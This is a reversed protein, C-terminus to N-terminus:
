PRVHATSHDRSVAASVLHRTEEILRRTSSRRPAAPLHVLLVGPRTTFRLPPELRVAEGDLGAPMPGDADVTLAGASWRSYGPSQHGRGFLELLALRAAALGDDVRVTLVGLSGSNLRPRWASRGLGGLRYPNNSILLAHAGSHQRGDPASFRLPFPASDPGILDPLEDLLARLKSRRYHRSRVMAAYVGLSVNNVFVRGNVEALDIRFPVASRFATMAHAPDNPDLGLDLALHNRTGAPVCVFPLGHRAAVAAVAAMSGDGGAVGLIAAGDDVATEALAGLDDGPGVPVVDVRGRHALEAVEFGAAKGNGSRPNLLLVARGPVAVRTGRWHRGRRPRRGAPRLALRASAMSFGFLLMTILLAGPRHALVHLVPAAVAALVTLGALVRVPGRRSVVHWGAIVAAPLAVLIGLMSWPHVRVAACMVVLAAVASGLAAVAAARYVRDRGAM